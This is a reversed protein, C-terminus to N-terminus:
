PLKTASGLNGMRGMAGPNVARAIARRSTTATVQVVDWGGDSSMPQGDGVRLMDGPAVGDATGAGLVLGAPERGVVAVSLPGCRNLAAVHRAADAVLLKLSPPNLPQRPQVGLPLIDLLRKTLRYSRRSSVRAIRTRAGADIVDIVLTANMGEGPTGALSTHPRTYRSLRLTTALIRGATPAADPTYLAAYRSSSFRHDTLGAGAGASALHVGARNLADALAADIRAALPQAVAPDLASDAEVRIALLHLPQSATCAKPAETAVDAQVAVRYLDRERTESVIKYGLLHGSASTTLHDGSVIGNLMQASADITLGGQAVSQELADAIARTRAAAIDGGAINAVGEAEVPRATAPAALILALAALRKM